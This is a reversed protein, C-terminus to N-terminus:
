NLHFWVGENRREIPPNKILFKKIPTPEWENGMHHFHIRKVHQCQSRDVKHRVYHRLICFITSNKVAYSGVSIFHHCTGLELNWTGHTDVM